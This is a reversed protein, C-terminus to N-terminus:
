AKRGLGARRMRFIREGHPDRLRQLLSALYGGDKKAEDVSIRHEKQLTYKRFAQFDRWVRVKRNTRRADILDVINVLKKKLNGKCEAATDCPPIGVEICLDQYGQLIEEETPEEQTSDLHQSSFYHTKLEERMAITREKTYEQSGPIWNQSLALRAFEKDFPADHSPTFNQFKDFHSQSSPPPNM